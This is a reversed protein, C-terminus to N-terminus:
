IENRSSCNISTRKLASVIQGCLACSTEIRRLAKAIVSHRKVNHRNANHSHANHRNANHSNANDRNANHSNVNHRKAHHSNANHRNANHSNANHRNANHRNANYRNANHSNANHMKVNHRNAYHRKGNHREANQSDAHHRFRTKAMCSEPICKTLSIGEYITRQLMSVIVYVRLTFLNFFIEYWLVLRISYIFPCLIRHILWCLTQFLM